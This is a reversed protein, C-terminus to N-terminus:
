HRAARIGSGASVSRCCRNLVTGRSMRCSGHPWGLASSRNRVSEPLVSPTSVSSAPCPTSTRSWRRPSCPHAPPSGDSSRCMSRLRAGAAWTPHGRLGSETPAPVTRTATSSTSALQVAQGIERMSPPYGQRDVTETIFRVIAAQRSTLEGEAAPHGSPRGRRVPATNEMGAGGYLITRFSGLGGDEMFPVGQRIESTRSVPRSVGGGGCANGRPRTDGSVFARV